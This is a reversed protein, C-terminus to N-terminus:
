LNERENVHRAMRHFGSPEPEQSGEQIRAEARAKNQEMLDHFLPSFHM